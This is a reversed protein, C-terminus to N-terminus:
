AGYKLYLEKMQLATKDWSYKRAQLISSQALQDRLQNDDRLQIIASAYAEPNPECFLAADELTERLVPIDSVVAPTGCAMAELPPFGFGELLSPFLFVDAGQYFSAMDEDKIFGKFETNNLELENAMLRLRHNEPLYGGIEFRIDHGQNQLVKATQLLAGANKHPVGLGGLYRVTFSQNQRASQNTGVENKPQYIAHNIGNHVVHVKDPSIDTHKIVEEKAQHSVVILARAKREAMGLQWKYYKFAAGKSGHVFPIADHITVFLNQQKGALIAAMAADVYDAQWVEANTNKIARSLFYPAIYPRLQRFSRYPYAKFMDGDGHDKRFATVSAGSAQTAIALNETYQGLGCYRDQCSIFAINM